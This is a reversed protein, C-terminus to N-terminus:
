EDPQLFGKERLIEREERTILRLAAPRADDISEIFQQLTDPDDAFRTRAAESRAHVSMTVVFLASHHMEEAWVRQAELVADDALTADALARHLLEALPQWLAKREEYAGTPFRRLFAEHDQLYELMGEAKGVLDATSDGPQPAFRGTGRMGPFESM